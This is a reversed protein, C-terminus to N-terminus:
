RKRKPPKAAPPQSPPLPPAWVHTDADVPIRIGDKDIDHPDSAADVVIPAEEKPKRGLAIDVGFLGAALVAGAAGHRRRATNVPDSAPEISEIVEDAAHLEAPVVDTDRLSAPSDDSSPQDPGTDDAM